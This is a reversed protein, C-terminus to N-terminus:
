IQSRNSSSLYFTSLLNTNKLLENIIFVASIQIKQKSLIQWKILFIGFDIVAQKKLAILSIISM